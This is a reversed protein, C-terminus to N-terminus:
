KRIADKGCSQIDHKKMTAELYIASIGYQQYLRDPIELITDVTLNLLEWPSCSAFLKPNGPEQCTTIKFSSTIFELPERPTMASCLSLPYFKLNRAAWVAELNAITGGCTIHGWSVREDPKLEPEVEDTFGPLVQGKELCYGLMKCLQKGAELELITTVPSAELSVNNPNFIM